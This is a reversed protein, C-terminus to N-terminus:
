SWFLFLVNEYTELEAKLATLAGVKKQVTPKTTNAGPAKLGVGVQTPAVPLNFVLTKESM